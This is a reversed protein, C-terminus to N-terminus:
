INKYDVIQSTYKQSPLRDPTDHMPPPNKCCIRLWASCVCIYLECMAFTHLNFLKLTWSYWNKHTQFSTPLACLVICQSIPVFSRIECNLKGVWSTWWRLIVSQWAFKRWKVGNWQSLRHETRETGSGICTFTERQRSCHHTLWKMKRNIFKQVSFLTSGFIEALSAIFCFIALKFFSSILIFQHASTKTWYMQWERSTLVDPHFGRIFWHSFRLNKESKM